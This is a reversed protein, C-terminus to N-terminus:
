RSQRKLLRTGLPIGGVLLLLMGVIGGYLGPLLYADHNDYPVYVFSSAEELFHVNWKTALGRTFSLNKEPPPPAEYVTYDFTGDGRSLWYELRSLTWYTDTYVVLVHQESTAAKEQFKGLPLIIKFTGPRVESSPHIEAGAPVWVSITQQEPLPGSHYVLWVWAGTSVLCVAGFGSVLALGVMAALGKM